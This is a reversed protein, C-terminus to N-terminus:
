AHQFSALHAYHGGHGMLEAHTGSEAIQGKEMVIIHHAGRVASLRHAIIIVTRGQCMAQMNNRIVHETEFDLASTAEDFILIRPNTVLARAIAIRQRQGGSLNAGHEAVITDYGEPLDSIFEHAGALTAARIVVSLPTGPDALAINARVSRNFLVNEQLVVGIHRRLWAPDALALDIGDVRVRGAEPLYLRQILKTLTSKGSGSRGVIGIVHGAPIKLSVGDLILKGEQQYRFGVNEFEIHGQLAPLAQRSQAQETRVNLIDGIRLMSIGIQQFDQWLQALRLVPAAVRQAMMNFAILQGVSLKGDIVLMAGYFLIALNVLKGILQILQQGLNSVNAARFGANVYAALQDEWRRVFQPEVAMAKVTEASSVSEVLFSQNDAGRAFKESLRQRLIPNLGASVAAYLPLSVIVILTLWGSYVFMVGLYVFSFFLDIVATVAQSTLFNRINELERVRAVTDGVRRATFYKIPLAVLHRYLRSGLEVDIRNTTHSFVYNRLGTLFVEFVSCVLLAVCVVTLTNFARNVLVKDMVVQFMLPTVLGFLQLVFSVLVVELLLRRYKVVAPIFWTFDFRALEGALSARSTFLLMRGKCREIVASPELMHPATGNPELVMAQTSDAGVLIFHSGDVAIGLAPCPTRGLREARVNVARVKLGLSRAALALDEEGLRASGLGAAHILQEPDTAINHHRAISVLAHVGADFNSTAHDVDSRSTETTSGSVPLSGKPSVAPVITTNM